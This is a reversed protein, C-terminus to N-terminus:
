WKVWDKITKDLTSSLLFESSRKETAFKAVILLRTLPHFLFKRHDAFVVICNIRRRGYTLNLGIVHM